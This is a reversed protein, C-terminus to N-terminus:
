TETASFVITGNCYGGISLPIQIRWYTQNRDSGFTSDTTRVPLDFNSIGTSTNTLNSMLAYTASSNVSYRQYGYTINGYECFMSYNTAQPASENVGAFGRISINIPVNGWNTINATKMSSLETVSLNGYDIEEPVNLALLKNITASVNNTANLYYLRETANGGKDSITMNCIWTGNNAYYYVNFAALCTANTNSGAVQTCTGTSNTYHTNRDDASGSQVSNHYFTANIFQVDGGGNWDYVYGTCNVRTTNGPELDISSPSIVVRTLNPETNWVYVKALSTDNTINAGIVDLTIISTSTLVLVFVLVIIIGVSIISNQKM